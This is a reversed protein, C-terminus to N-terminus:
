LYKSCSCSFSIVNREAISITSLGIFTNIYFFIIAPDYCSQIKAIAFLFVSCVISTALCVSLVSSERHNRIGIKLTLITAFRHSVPNIEIVM